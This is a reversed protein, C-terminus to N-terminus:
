GQVDPVPHPDDPVLDGTRVVPFHAAPGPAVVPLDRPEVGVSHPLPFHALAMLAGSRFEVVPLAERSHSRDASPVNPEEPAPAAPVAASRAASTRCRAAASDAVPDNQVAPL